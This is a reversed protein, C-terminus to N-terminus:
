ADFHGHEDRISWLGPNALYDYLDTLLALHKDEEAKLRLFLDRTGPDTAKAASDAYFAIAKREMDRGIDVAELDTTGAQVTKDIKAKGRKMLVPDV